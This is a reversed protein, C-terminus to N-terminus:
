CKISYKENAGSRLIAERVTNCLYLLDSPAYHVKGCLFIDLYGGFTSSQDTKQIFKEKTGLNATVLCAKGQSLRQCCFSSHFLLSSHVEDPFCIM